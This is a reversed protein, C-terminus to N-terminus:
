SKHAQINGGTLLEEMVNEHLGREGDLTFTLRDAGHGPEAKDCVEAFYHHEHWDGGVSVHKVRATGTFEGCVGKVPDVFSSFHTITETHVLTQTEHYVVQMQGKVTGTSDCIDRGNVNFGFTVKGVGAPDVRGGGTFRPGAACGVHDSAPGNFAALGPSQEPPMSTDGCAAALSAAVALVLTGVASIARSHSRHHM